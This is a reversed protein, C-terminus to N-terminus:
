MLFLEHYLFIFACRAYRSYYYNGLGLSLCLAFNAQTMGHPDDISIFGNSNTVPLDGSMACRMCKTEIRPDFVPYRWAIWGYPFNPLYKSIAWSMMWAIYQFSLTSNDFSWVNWWQCIFFCHVFLWSQLM